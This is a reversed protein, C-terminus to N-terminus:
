PIVPWGTLNEFVFYMLGIVILACAAFIIAAEVCTRRDNTM